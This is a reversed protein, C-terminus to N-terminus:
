MKWLAPSRMFLRKNILGRFIQAFSTRYIHLNPVGCMALISPLHQATCQTGVSAKVSSRILAALATSNNSLAFRSFHLNSIVRILDWLKESIRCLELSLRRIICRRMLNRRNFCRTAKSNHCECLECINKEILLGKWTIADLNLIHRILVLSPMMSDLSLRM